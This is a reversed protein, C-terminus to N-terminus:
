LLLMVDFAICQQISLNNSNRVTNTMQLALGTRTRDGSLKNWTFDDSSFYAKLDKQTLKDGFKLLEMTKDTQSFVVMAIQTGTPNVNLKPHEVLENLFPKIEKNFTSEGISFSVDLLILLDKKCKDPFFTM